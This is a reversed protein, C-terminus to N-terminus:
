SKKKTKSKHIEFTVMGTKTIILTVSTRAPVQHKNLNQMNNAAITQKEKEKSTSLIWHSLVTEYPLTVGAGVM